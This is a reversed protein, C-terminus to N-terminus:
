AADRGLLGGKKIWDDMEQKSGWCDGPAYNYFFSVYNRMLATNEDDARQFAGKLDNCIVATLFHGPPIGREIYRVIGDRMREPLRELGEMYDDM